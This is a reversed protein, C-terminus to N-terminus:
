CDTFCTYNVSPNSEDRAEEKGDERIKEGPTGENVIERNTVIYHKTM